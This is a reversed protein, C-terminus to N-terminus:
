KTSHMIEDAGYVLFISLTIVNWVYAYMYMYCWSKLKAASTLVSLSLGICLLKVTYISYAHYSSTHPIEPCSQSKPIQTDLIFTKRCFFFFFVHM